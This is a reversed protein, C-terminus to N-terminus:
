TCAERAISRSRRATTSSSGGIYTAYQLASGDPSLKAVFVDTDRNVPGTPDATAPFDSSATFGTVWASGNADVMVARGFEYGSGGLYSSYVIASGNRPRGDAPAPLAACLVLVTM